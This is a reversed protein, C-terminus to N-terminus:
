STDFVPPALLKPPEAQATLVSTLYDLAERGQQKLTQLVSALIAHTRAGRQTKNCGGTKRIIVAPRLAREARNNTAEVGEVQLFRLLHRRQKRLRKAWRANDPDTFRRSEAILVDLKAELHQLRVEFTPRDLKPQEDRLALAERLVQALERPFRVAGRSKEWALKALERLFHAFCKQQLWAALAQHDYALLLREATLM